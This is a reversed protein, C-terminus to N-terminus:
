VPLSHFRGDDNQIVVTINPDKPITVTSMNSSLCVGFAEDPEIDSDDLVTIDSFCKLHEASEFTVALTLSRYDVEGAPQSTSPSATHHPSSACASHTTDNSNWPHM